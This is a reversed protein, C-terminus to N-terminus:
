VDRNVDHGIVSHPLHYLTSSIRVFLFSLLSELEIAVFRSSFPSFVIASFAAARVPDRTSACRLILQVHGRLNHGSEPPQSFEAKALFVRCDVPGRLLWGLITRGCVRVFFLHPSLSNQHPHLSLERLFTTNKAVQVM